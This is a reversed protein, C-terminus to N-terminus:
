TLNKMRKVLEQDTMTHVGEIVLIKMDKARQLFYRKSREGRGLTTAVLVKRVYAGGFKDAVASLKYLEEDDVRGNKCSVFVPVLGQMLVLDIENETDVQNDAEEHVIGDWDIFVGNQVASYCPTGDKHAAKEAALLTILELVTGAKTLVRKVQDNKFTLAFEEETRIVDFLLGAKELQTLVGHLNMSLGRGAYYDRAQDLYVRLRLGQPDETNFQLLEELMTIQHNWRGCNPKCIEWMRAVDRRFEGDLVWPYTGSDRMQWTVVSGGHLIVNQEPTLGPLTGSVNQGNLDCDFVRGTRINYRHLEIGRSRYREYVIGMAAGALADGGTIDFHCGPYEEVIASLVKVIESLEHVRIGRYELQTHGSGVAELFRRFTPDYKVMKNRDGVFVVREPRNALASVMNEIPSSSFFEVIVM